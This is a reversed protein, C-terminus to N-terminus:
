QVVGIDEQHNRCGNDPNTRPWVLQYSKGNEVIEAKPAEAGFCIGDTLDREWYICTACKPREM